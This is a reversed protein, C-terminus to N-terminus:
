TAYEQVRFTGSFAGDSGCQDYSGEGRRSLVLRMGVVGASVDLVGGRVVVNVDETKQVVPLYPALVLLIDLMQLAAKVKGEKEKPESRLGTLSTNLHGLVSRYAGALESEGAVGAWVGTVEGVQAREGREVGAFGNFLM